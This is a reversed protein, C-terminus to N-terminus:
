KIKNEIKNTKELSPLEEKIVKHMFEAIKQSSEYNYSSVEDPIETEIRRLAIKLLSTKEESTLVQNRVDYTHLADLMKELKLEFSPYNCLIVNSHKNLDMINNTYDKMYTTIEKLNIIVNKGLKEQEKIFVSLSEFSQKSLERPFSLSALVTINPQGQTPYDKTALNQTRLLLLSEVSNHYGVVQHDSMKFSTSPLREVLKLNVGDLMKSFYCNMTANILTGQAELYDRGLILDKNRTQDFLKSFNFDSQETYFSDIRPTNLIPYTSELKEVINNVVNSYREKLDEITPKEIQFEITSIFDNKVKAFYRKEYIKILKEPGSITDDLIIGLLTNNRIMPNKLIPSLDGYITKHDSIAADPNDILYKNCINTLTKNEDRIMGKLCGISLSEQTISKENSTLHKRLANDQAVSYKLDKDMSCGQEIYVLMMTKGYIVDYNIKYDPDNNILERFKALCMLSFLEDRPLDVSFKQVLIADEETFVGVLDNLCNANELYAQIEELRSSEERTMVYGGSHIFDEKAISSLSSRGNYFVIDEFENMYLDNKLGGNLELFAGKFYPLQLLENMVLHEINSLGAKTIDPNSDQYEKLLEKLKTNIM